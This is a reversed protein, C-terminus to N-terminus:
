NGSAVGTQSITIVKTQTSSAVLSLTVTGFQATDGTLRNFVVESGGGALSVLSLHVRPNFPVGVNEVVEASYVPGTFRVAKGEEFHVGHVASNKASLTLGRAERLLSLVAATDKELAERGAAKPFVGLAIFSLLGIVALAILMEM